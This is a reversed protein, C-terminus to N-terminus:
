VDWIGNKEGSQPTIFYKLHQNQQMFGIENNHINHDFAPWIFLILYSFITNLRLFFLLITGNNQKDM